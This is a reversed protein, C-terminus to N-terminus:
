GHAMGFFRGFTVLSAMEATSTVALKSYAARRNKEVTKISIGLRTAITKNPIGESALAIINREREALTALRDASAKLKSYQQAARFGNRVSEIFLQKDNFDINQYLSFRSFMLGASEERLVITPMLINQERLNSVTNPQDTILVDFTGMSQLYHLEIAESISDTEQVQVDPFHFGLLQGVVAFRQSDEVLLLATGSSMNQRWAVQSNHAVRPMMLLGLFCKTALYLHYNFLFVLPFTPTEHRIPNGYLGLPIEVTCTHLFFNSTINDSRRKNTISEILEFINKLLFDRCFEVRLRKKKGSM